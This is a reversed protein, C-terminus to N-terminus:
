VRGRGEKRRQVLSDIAMALFLTGSLGMAIYYPMLNRDDGTKVVNISNNNKEVAFRLLLDAVTAKYANGQTEGDLAVKLTLVGKQGTSLSDLFFYDELAATAQHLGQSTAGDKEGGVTDSDFLVRNKGAANRYSLRYTYAGNRAVSNDELSELVRNIMYWDATDANRNTLAITFTIDDGPQLGSVAKQADTTSFISELKNATTFTVSWDRSSSDAHATVGLAGLLCFVLLFCVFQKKM